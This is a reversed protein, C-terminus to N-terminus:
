LQDLIQKFHTMTDKFNPGFVILKGMVEMTRALLEQFHQEMRPDIKEPFTFVLSTREDAGFTSIVTAGSSTTQTNAAATQTSGPLNFTTQPPTAVADLDAQEIEARERGFDRPDPIEIDQEPDLRKLTLIGDRICFWCKGRSAQEKETLERKQCIPCIPNKTLDGM